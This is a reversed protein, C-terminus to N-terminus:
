PVRSELRRTKRFKPRHYHVDMHCRQCLPISKRKRAMMIKMWLPKERRGQKNLDALHRVHHMQIHEKSGCVECTENLLREVIESRRRIYPMLVQDKIATHKRQLPLGGFTAVLAKKGARPITLKLCKRPGNPTQTTSKLRKHTQVVTTRGKAALTKLLSTEMTYGVHGLSHLNQALTYYEVLGRYEGQYRPILDYESDNMREARHHAKGDRLYRTRKNELVDEPIYLGIKAIVARRRAKDFKTQSHMTGIEYGLFRARGTSAHTILTKDASLTLNLQTGLFAAIKDKIERAEAMTGAYGLLFDDAYRVYRLRRYEADNPDVSPQQQMAKRLAAAREISGTKRSYHANSERRKYERSSKRRTGRTYEPILTDQVLRDLRDMYINSLIPSVIGGQPSGSLSPHDTWAECYGAKLAGEILRLFRNDQINERLINMLLHHDINDFCGKIDGEIFWKTGTWTEGVEHLATHCGRKPRCGHSYPSFHPEYYAELISRVIDQVVKDSWVPLGLPRKGGKPKDILIRKVPTWQWREYRIAEIIKAVKERSWGDVTEETIGPTM